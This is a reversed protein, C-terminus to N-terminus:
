WPSSSDDGLGRQGKEVALLARENRGLEKIFEITITAGTKEAIVRALLLANICQLREDTPLDLFKQFLEKVDLPKGSQAFKEVATTLPDFTLPKKQGPDDPQSNEATM